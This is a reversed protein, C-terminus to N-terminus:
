LIWPQTKHTELDTSRVNVGLSQALKSGIFARDDEAMKWEEAKSLLQLFHFGTPFWFHSFWFKLKFIFFGFNINSLPNAIVWEKLPELRKKSNEINPRIKERVKEPIEEIQFPRLLWLM